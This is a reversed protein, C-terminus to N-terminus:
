IKIKKANVLILDTLLMPSAQYQAHIKTMTHIFFNFIKKKLIYEM